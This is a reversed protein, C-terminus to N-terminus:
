RVTSEIPVRHVQTSRITSLYLSTESNTIGEILRLRKLFGDLDPLTHTAFEVVCDWRGNTTHIAQIESFGALLNVIDDNGNGEIEILTVGRVPLDNADGEVVTTFGLIKGSKVLNDIHTRVTTRSVRLEKALDSVSARANQRLASILNQDISTMKFGISNMIILIAIYQVNIPITGTM